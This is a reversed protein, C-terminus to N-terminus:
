DRSKVALEKKTLQSWWKNFFILNYLFLDKQALRIQPWWESSHTSSDEVYSSGVSLAAPMEIKYDENKKFAENM